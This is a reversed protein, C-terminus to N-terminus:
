AFRRMFRDAAEPFRDGTAAEFEKDLTVFPDWDDRGGPKGYERLMRDRTDYSRPYPTGFFTMARVVVEASDGLGLMRLGEVAEPALVGTYGAWFFQHFGGNYVQGECWRAAWVLLLERPQDIREPWFGDEDWCDFPLDGLRGDLVRDAWPRRDETPQSM